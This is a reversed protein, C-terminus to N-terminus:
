AVHRQELNDAAGLHHQSCHAVRQFRVIVSRKLFVIETASHAALAAMVGLLPGLVMLRLPHAFRHQLAQLDLWLAVHIGADPDPPRLAALEYRAGPSTKM